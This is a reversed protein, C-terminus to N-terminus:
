RATTYKRRKPRSRKRSKQSESRKQRIGWDVLEKRIYPWREPEGIAQALDRALQSDNTSPNKIEGFAAVVREKTTTKPKQAGEQQPQHPTLVLQQSSPRAAPRNPGSGGMMPQSGPVESSGDTLRAPWLTGLEVKGVYFVWGRVEERVGTPRRAIMRVSPQRSFVRVRGRWFRLEIQDVWEAHAILKREGTVTSRAMCPLRDHTLAEMLDIVALANNSTRKARQQCAAEISLWQAHDDIAPTM